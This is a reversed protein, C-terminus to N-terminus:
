LLSLSRRLSSLIAIGTALWFPKTTGGRGKLTFEPDKTLRKRLDDSLDYLMRRHGFKQCIQVLRVFNIETTNSFMQLPAHLLLDQLESLVDKQLLYESHSADTAQLQVAVVNQRVVRINHLLEALPKMHDETYGVTKNQRKPVKGGAAMTPRSPKITPSNYQTFGLIFRLRSPLIALAELLDDVAFNAPPAPSPGQFLEIYIFLWSRNMFPFYKRAAEM